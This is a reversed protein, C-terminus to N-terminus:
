IIDKVDFQSDPVAEDYCYSAIYTTTLLDDYSGEPAQMKGSNENHEYSMMQDLIEVDKIILEGLKFMEEARGVAAAKSSTTPRWGAITVNKSAIQDFETHQYIEFDYHLQAEALKDLISFGKNAREVVVLANNFEKSLDCVASTLSGSDVRGKFSVCQVLSGDETIEWITGADFDSSKKAAESTDLCLIYVGGAYSFKWYKVEMGRVVDEMVPENYRIKTSRKFLVDMIGHFVKNGTALFCSNPDEPYEQFFKKGKADVKVRRWKLHETTIRFNYEEQVREIFEKEEDTPIIVEDQELAIRYEDDLAFWWPFFHFNYRGGRKHMARDCLLHFHNGQGYATSEIRLIAGDRLPVSEELGNLLEEADPWLGLESCHAAHITDGRGFSVTGATGIYLSSGKGGESPAKTIIYDERSHDRPVKYQKPMMDYALHAIRLLKKTKERDESIIVGNFGEVFLTYALFEIVTLTSIGLQRAKLVIDSGCKPNKLLRCQAESPKFPIIGRDKTRIHFLKPAIEPLKLRVKEMEEFINTPM